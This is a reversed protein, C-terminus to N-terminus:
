FVGGCVDRGMVGGSITDQLAGKRCGQGVGRGALDAVALGLLLAPRLLEHSLQALAAPVDAAPQPPAEGPRVAGEPPRPARRLPRPRRQEPLPALRQLLTRSQEDSPRGCPGQRQQECKVSKGRM